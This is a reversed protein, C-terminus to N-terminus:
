KYCVSPEYMMSSGILALVFFLIRISSLRNYFIPRCWWWLCSRPSYDGLEYVFSGDSDFSFSIFFAYSSLRVSFPFVSPQCSCYIPLILLSGSLHLSYLDLFISYPIWTALFDKLPVCLLMLTFSFPTAQQHFSTPRHLFIIVTNNDLNIIDNDCHRHHLSSLM